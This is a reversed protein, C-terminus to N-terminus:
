PQRVWDPVPVTTEHHTDVCGRVYRDGDRRYRCHRRPDKSALNTVPRACWRCTAGDLLRALLADLAHVPSRKAEVTVKAGRYLATAWWAAQDTPVDDHLYGVELQTAGTRGILDIAANARDDLPHDHM